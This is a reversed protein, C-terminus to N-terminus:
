ALQFSGMITGKRLPFMSHEGYPALFRHHCAFSAMVILHLIKLLLWVVFVKLVGYLVRLYM